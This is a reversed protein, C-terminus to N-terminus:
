TVANYALSLWSHNKVHKHLRQKDADKAKCWTHWDRRHCSHPYFSCGPHLWRLTQTLSSIWLVLHLVLSSLRILILTHSHLRGHFANFHRLISDVFAVSRELSRFSHKSPFQSFQFIVIVWSYRQTKKIETATYRWFCKGLKVSFRVQNVRFM